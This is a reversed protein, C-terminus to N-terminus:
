NDSELKLIVYTHGALFNGISANSAAAGITIHDGSMVAYGGWVDYYPNSANGTVTLSRGATCSLVHSSNESIVFNGQILSNNSYDSDQVYKSKTLVPNECFVYFGVGTHEFEYRQLNESPTFEEIVDFFTNDTIHAM